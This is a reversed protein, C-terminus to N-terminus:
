CVQSKKYFEFYEKAITYSQKYGAYMNSKVDWNLFKVPIGLLTPYM